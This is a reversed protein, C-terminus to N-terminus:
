RVGSQDAPPVNDWAELLQRFAAHWATMTSRIDEATPWDRMDFRSASDFRSFRNRGATPLSLEYTLSLFEPLKYSKYSMADAVGKIKDILRKANATERDYAQLADLYTRTADTM